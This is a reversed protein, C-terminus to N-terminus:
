ALIGAVKLIVTAVFAITLPIIGVMVASSIRKVRAATAPSVLEKAALFAMLTGSGVAGAVAGLGIAAVTTVTSVTITTVTSVM